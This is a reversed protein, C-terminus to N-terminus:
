PGPIARTGEGRITGRDRRPLITIALLSGRLRLGAAYPGTPPDGRPSACFSLRFIRTSSVQTPTSAAAPDWRVGTIYEAPPSSRERLTSFSSASRRPSPSFTKERAPCFRGARAKWSRLRAYPLLCVWVRMANARRLTLTGPVIGRSAVIM